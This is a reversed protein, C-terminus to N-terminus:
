SIILSCPSSLCVERGGVGQRMYGPSCVAHFPHGIDGYGVYVWSPEVQHLQSSTRLPLLTQSAVGPGPCRSAGNRASEGSVGM